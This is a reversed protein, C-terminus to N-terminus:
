DLVSHLRGLQQDSLLKGSCELFLKFDYISAYASMWNARATPTWRMWLRPWINKMMEERNPNFGSFPMATLVSRAIMAPLQELQKADGYAPVFAYTQAEWDHDMMPSITCTDGDDRVLFGLRYAGGDFPKFPASGNMSELYDVSTRELYNQLNFSQSEVGGFAERYIMLHDEYVSESIHDKDVTMDPMVVAFKFKGNDSQTQAEVRFLPNNLMRQYIRRNDATSEVVLDRELQLHDRNSLTKSRLSSNNAKLQDIESKRLKAQGM